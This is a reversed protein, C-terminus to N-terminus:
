HRPRSNKERSLELYMGKVLVILHNADRVYFLNGLGRWMRGSRDAVTVETVRPRHVGLQALPIRNEQLFNGGSVVRKRYSPSDLYGSGFAARSAAYGVPTGLYTAAEERTIASVGSTRMVATVVWNGFFGETQQGDAHAVGGAIVTAIILVVPNIRNM